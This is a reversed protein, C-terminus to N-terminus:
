RSLIKVEGKADWQAGWGLEEITKRMEVTLMRYEEKSMIERLKEQNATYVVKMADPLKEFRHWTTLSTLFDM